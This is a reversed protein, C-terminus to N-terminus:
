KIQLNRKRDLYAGPIEVGDKLAKKIRNKDPEYKAPIERCWDGPLEGTVVVSESSRFSFEHLNTQLKELGMNSLFSGIYHKIWEAKNERKRRIANLREIESNAAEAQRTYHWFLNALANAKDESTFELSEIAREIEEREEDTTEEGNYREILESLAFPIERLTIDNM